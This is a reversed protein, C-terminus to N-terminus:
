RRLKTTAGPSRGLAGPVLSRRGHRFEDVRLPEIIPDRRPPGTPQSRM